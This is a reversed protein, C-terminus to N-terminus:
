VDNSCAAIEDACQDYYCSSCDEGPPTTTCSPCRTVRCFYRADFMEQADTTADWVCFQYEPTGSATAARCELIDNCSDTGSLGCTTYAAECPGFMAGEVCQLCGVSSTNACEGGASYSCETRICGVLTDYAAKGEPAALDYCAQTCTATTCGLGCAYIGRCDYNCEAAADPCDCQGDIGCQM